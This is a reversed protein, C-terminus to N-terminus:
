LPLHGRSKPNERYLDLIVQWLSGSASSSIRTLNEKKAAIAAHRTEHKEGPNANASSDAPAAGAAAAILWNLEPSM